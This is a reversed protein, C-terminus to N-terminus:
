GKGVKAEIDIDTRQELRRFLGGALGDLIVHMDDAHRRKRSAVQRQYGRQALRELLLAAAVDNDNHSAHDRGLIIGREVFGAGLRDEPGSRGDDLSGDIEELLETCRRTVLRDGLLVPLNEVAGAVLMLFGDYTEVIPRRLNLGRRFCTLSRKPRREQLFLPRPKCSKAPIDSLPTAPLRSLGRALWKMVCAFSRNPPIAALMM